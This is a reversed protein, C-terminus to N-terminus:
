RADPAVYKMSFDFSVDKKQLINSLPSVVDTLYPTERFKKLMALADDRTAAFGQLRINGASDFELKELRARDPILATIDELIDAWPIFAEQLASTEKLYQNTQKIDAMISASENSVAVASRQKLEQYSALMQNRVLLLTGVLSLVALFFLLSLTQFFGLVLGKQLSRKKSPPMLNLYIKM